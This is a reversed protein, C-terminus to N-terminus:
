STGRTSGVECANAAVAVYEVGFSSADRRPRAPARSPLSVNIATAPMGTLYRMLRWPRILWHYIPGALPPLLGIAEHVVPVRCPACDGGM